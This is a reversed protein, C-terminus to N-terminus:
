AWLNPHETTTQGAPASLSSKKAKRPPVATKKGASAKEDDDGSGDDSGGGGAAAKKAAAAKKKKAEVLRRYQENMRREKVREEYAEVRTARRESERESVLDSWQFNPLHKVNWSEGYCRRRRKVVVSRANMQDAAEKADDASMFEIWGEVFQVGGKTVGSLLGSARKGAHSSAAGGKGNEALVFKQRGIPGFREFVDRVETPRM